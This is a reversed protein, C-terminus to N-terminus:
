GNGALAYQNAKELQGTGPPAFLSCTANIGNMVALSAFYASAKFKKQGLAQCATQLNVLCGAAQMPDIKTQAKVLAQGNKGFLFKKAKAFLGSSKQKAKKLEAHEKRVRWGRFLSQIKIAAKNKQYDKYLKRARFGRFATQIKTAACNKKITDLDILRFLAMAFANIIPILLLIGAGFHKVRTALSPPAVNKEENISYNDLFTRKLNEVGVKYPEIFLTNFNVDQLCNKTVYIEM